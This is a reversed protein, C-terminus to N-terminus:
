DQTEEEVTGHARERQATVDVLLQELDAMRGRLAAETVGREALLAKIEEALMSLGIALADVEDMAQPIRFEPSFNGSIMEDLIDAVEQIRASGPSHGGPAWDIVEDVEGKLWGLAEGRDSVLIAPVTLKNFGLFFSAAVRQAPNRYVAALKKNYDPKLMQAVLQRADRRVMKLNGLDILVPLPVPGIQEALKYVTAFHSLLSDVTMEEVDIWLHVVGDKVMVRGIGTETVEIDKIM